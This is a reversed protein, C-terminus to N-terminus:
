ERGPRLYAQYSMDALSLAARTLMVDSMPVANGPAVGACEVRFRSTLQPVKFVAATMKPDDVMQCHGRWSWMWRFGKPLPTITRPKLEIIFDGIEGKFGSAGIAAGQLDHALCWVGEFNCTM